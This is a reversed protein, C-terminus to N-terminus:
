LKKIKKQLNKNNMLVMYHKEFGIFLKVEALMLQLM